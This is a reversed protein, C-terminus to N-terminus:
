VTVNVRLQLTLRVIISLMSKCWCLDMCDDWINKEAGKGHNSLIKWKQERQPTEFYVLCKFLPKSM